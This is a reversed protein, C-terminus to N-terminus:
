EEEYTVILEKEKSNATGRLDIAKIHNFKIWRENASVVPMKLSNNFYKWQREGMNQIFKRHRLIREDILNNITSVKFAINKSYEEVLKHDIEVSVSNRELLISATVTTGEGLFPDLVTDEISSFMSILRMPIEIPFGASRNRSGTNNITQRKGNIGKWIDSYWENREEWFISSIRRLEIEGGTFKRKNGKRFVLIHEHEMKVYAGIPLTGSGLFKNPANTPKNWIISPLIYFGIQMAKALIRSHSSFLQFTEDLTRVADGIVICMIGGEKLVRHCEEWVKDLEEHMLEFAQMTEHLNMKEEIKNNLSFFLKDWMEIMPYPPSTVILNVSRDKIMSLNRSDAGYIKHLTTGDSSM